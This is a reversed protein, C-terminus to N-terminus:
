FNRFDVRRKYVRVFDGGARKEDKFSLVIDVSRIESLDTGTFEAGSETFYKFSFYEINKAIDHWELTNASAKYLGRELFVESGVSKLRFAVREKDDLVGDMDFDRDVDINSSGISRVGEFNSSNLPNLGTERLVRAVYDMVLRGERQVDVVKNHDMFTRSSITFTDVLAIGIISAVVLVVMLEVLTMGKNNM